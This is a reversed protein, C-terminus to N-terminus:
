QKKKKRQAALQLLLENYQIIFDYKDQPVKGYVLKAAANIDTRLQQVYMASDKNITSDKQATAFFCICLATITLKFRM